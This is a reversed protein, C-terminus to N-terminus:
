VPVDGFGEDGRGWRPFISDPSWNPASHPNSPYDDRYHDPNDPDYHWEFRQREFYQVMYWRGEIQELFAESSMM